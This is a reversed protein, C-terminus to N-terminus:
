NGGDKWKNEVYMFGNIKVTEFEFDSKPNAKKLKEVMHHVQSILKVDAIEWIPKIEDSEDGTLCLGQKDMAWITDVAYKIPVVYTPLNHMNIDVYKSHLMLKDCLDFYKDLLSNLEEIKEKNWKEIKGAVVEIQELTNKERVEQKKFELEEENHWNVVCNKNLCVGNKFGKALCDPCEDSFVVQTPRDLFLIEGIEFFKKRMGERESEPLSINTTIEAEGNPIGVSDDGELYLTAIQDFYDGMKIM